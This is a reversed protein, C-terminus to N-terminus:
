NKENEGFLELEETQTKNPQFKVALGPQIINLRLNKLHNEILPVAEGSWGYSGFSAAYKGKDRIPNIVSFLKYVPLLIFNLCGEL